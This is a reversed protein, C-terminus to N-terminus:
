WQREEQRCDGHSKEKLLDREHTVVGAVVEYSVVLVRVFRDPEKDSVQERTDADTPPFAAVVRVMDYCIGHVTVRVDLVKGHESNGVLEELRHDRCIM